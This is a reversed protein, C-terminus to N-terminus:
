VLALLWSKTFAVWLFALAMLCCPLYSRKRFATSLSLLALLKKCQCCCHLHWHLFNKLICGVIGIGNVLCIAKICDHCCCCHWHQFVEKERAVGIVVGIGFADKKCWM